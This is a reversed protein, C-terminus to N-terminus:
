MQHLLVKISGNVSPQPLSMFEIPPTGEASGVFSHMIAPFRAIQKRLDDWSLINQVGEHFLEEVERQVAPPEDVLMLANPALYDIMTSNLDLNGHEPTLSAVINASQLERISRQSLADFERISEISDGWFEIRIPNDGVFPFVDLIGGRVSFDGYEEVFDKREFGLTILQSILDEFPHERGASIELSRQKFVAAPPVLATIADASTVVVIVENATLAKLTEVQAIPATMDLLTSKHGPGHAYLRVSQEGLLLSCDDRLQEASDKDPTILVVQSKRAEYLSAAVFAMLSGNIGRVSITEGAALSATRKLLMQFPGSAEITKRIEEIM